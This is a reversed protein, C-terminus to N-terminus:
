FKVAFTRRMLLETIWPSKCHCQSELVSGENVTIYNAGCSICETKSREPQYQGKACKPCLVIGNEVKVYTGPDCDASIIFLSYLMIFIQLHCLITMSGTEQKM